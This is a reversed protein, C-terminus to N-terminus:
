SPKEQRRTLSRRLSIAFQVLLGLTVLVCSIYPILWGPNKVVQLISLTDGKGFSAQYFTRGEYRLPQNMYILVDRAEGKTPNYVQVLSSFNKPIDTGPYVDHSFKKLTLSYPLYHRSPRISMVYTHGEHIFSQPAGLAVSVLWVGYSRGGAMPEIFASTNNMENDSSVIGKEQIKVSPGVGMTAISPPDLPGRNVLEANPFFQKVKLTIPSGPLAVTSSKALLTTPVGFVEDSAPDTVDVFALELNRSSEVFNVTQGQEIAMRDDRQMAASVFEGSVLLILGAHIIWIGAKQWAWQLRKLMSAFLNVGLILGVLTGGPFIPIVWDASQPGWWVFFSRMYSNVAGYTGLNVQALTCAVVLVMLLALSIISLKLSTLFAWTRALYPNTM